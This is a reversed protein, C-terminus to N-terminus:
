TDGVVVRVDQPSEILTVQFPSVSQVHIEQREDVQEHL